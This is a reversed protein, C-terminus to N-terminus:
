YPHFIIFCLTIVPRIKPITNIPANSKIFVTTKGTKIAKIEEIATKVTEIIKQPSQLKEFPRGSIFSDNKLTCSKLINGQAADLLLATITTTGIDIGLIKM